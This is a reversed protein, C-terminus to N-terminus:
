IKFYRKTHRNIRYCRRSKIKKNSIDGATKLTGYINENTFLYVPDHDHFARTSFFEAESLDTM